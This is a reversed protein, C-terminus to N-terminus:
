RRGNSDAGLKHHFLCGTYYIDGCSEGKQKLVDHGSTRTIYFFCNYVKNRNIVAWAKM